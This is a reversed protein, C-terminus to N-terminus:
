FVINPRVLIAWRSSPLGEALAGRYANQFQLQLGTSLSFAWDGSKSPWKKGVL